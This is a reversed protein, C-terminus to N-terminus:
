RRRAWVQWTDVANTDRSHLVRTVVYTIEGAMVVDGAQYPPTSPGTTIFLLQDDDRHTWWRQLRDVISM